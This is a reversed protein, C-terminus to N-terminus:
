LDVILFIRSDVRTLRNSGVKLSASVYLIRQTRAYKEFIVIKHVNIQEM